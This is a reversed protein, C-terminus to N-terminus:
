GLPGQLKEIRERLEAPWVSKVGAAYDFAVVVGEGSAAVAGHAVSAVAYEMTFRDAELSTVRAGIRVSDPYTLPIRFRCNTTALIPGVGSAAAIDKIGVADFWAIRGDEFWRFYKVNNVHGIADMDGWAVPFDVIVPFGDLPDSM